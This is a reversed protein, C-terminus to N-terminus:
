PPGGPRLNPHLRKGPALPYGLLGHRAAAVIARMDDLRIPRVRPTPNRGRGSEVGATAHHVAPSHLALGAKSTRSAAQNPTRRARERATKPRPFPVNPHTAAAHTRGRRPTLGQRDRLARTLWASPADEGVAEDRAVTREGPDEPGGRIVWPENVGQVIPRAEGNDNSPGM